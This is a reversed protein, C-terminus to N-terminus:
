IGRTTKDIMELLKKLSPLEKVFQVSQLAELNKLATQVSPKQTDFFNTLWTKATELAKHYLAPKKHLVAWQAQYLQNQVNSILYSHQEVPILPQVPQDYHRVVIAKQLTQSVQALGKQWWSAEDSPPQYDLVETESASKSHVPALPLNPIENALTDLRIVIDTTDVQPLNELTQISEQFQRKLALFKPGEQQNLLGKATKLLMLSSDIDKQFQLNHQALRTLYQIEGFLWQDPDPHERNAWKQVQHQLSQLMQTQQSLSQNIKEHQQTILQHFQQLETQVTADVDQQDYVYWSTLTILAILVILNIISFLLIWGHVRSRPVESSKNTKTESPQKESPNQQAM